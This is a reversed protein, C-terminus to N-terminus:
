GGVVATLLRPKITVYDDSLVGVLDHCAWLYCAYCVLVFALESGKLATMM